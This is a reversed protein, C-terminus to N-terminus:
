LSFPVRITELPLMEVRALYYCQGYRYRDTPSHPVSRGSSSIADVISEIKLDTLRGAVISNPASKRSTGVATSACTWSFAATSVCPCPPKGSADNSAANRLYVGGVFM